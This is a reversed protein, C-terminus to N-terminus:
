FHNVNWNVHFHGTALAFALLLGYILISAISLALGTIALGRGEYIEPHRSIQVLAVSSFVLGLINCPFGYCCCFILSLVGFVMGTTAFGSAKRVRIPPAITQPIQPALQSAFEPLLGAFSWEKAGDVFVPTRIEVRGEAIWQRLQGASVPGYEKGDEGIIKYTASM